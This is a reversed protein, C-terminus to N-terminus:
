RAAPSHPAADHRVEAPPQASTTTPLPCAASTGRARLALHVAGATLAAAIWGLGDHATLTAVLSGVAAAPLLLRSLACPV